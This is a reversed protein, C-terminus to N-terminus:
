IEATSGVDFADVCGIYQVGGMDPCIPNGKGPLDFMQVPLCKELDKVVIDLYELGILYIGTRIDPVQEEQQAAM